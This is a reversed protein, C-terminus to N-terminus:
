LKIFYEGIILKKKNTESNKNSDSYKSFPIIRIDFSIRTNNTNNIMNYHKWKNLYLFAINNKNLNLNCYKDYLINSNEFPEFYISNTDYMNTIPLILNIENEDHNFENDYHLGIITDNPDSSRKGINTCNPLHLRINPTKQVVIYEEDPFFTPKIYNLIFNKYLDIFKNSNDYYKHFVKIFISERDNIGFFPINSYYEKDKDNILNTDLLYHINELEIKINFNDEYIEKIIKNFNYLINDYKQINHNINFKNICKLYFNM